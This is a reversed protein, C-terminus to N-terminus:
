IILADPTKQGWNSARGLTYLCERARGEAPGLDLLIIQDERHNILPTLAELLLIREAPSLDCRFVSYQLAEGFGCVKRHVRRLRGPDAIDYAVLYRKRM